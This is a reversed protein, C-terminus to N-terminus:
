KKKPTMLFEVFQLYHEFEMQSLVKVPVGLKGLFQKMLVMKDKDTTLAARQEELAEVMGVTPREIEMTTEYIKVKLKASKNIEFDM